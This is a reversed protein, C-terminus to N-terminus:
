PATGHLVSAGNITLRDCEVRGTLRSGGNLTITGAPALVVAELTAGGNLTVGGSAVRLTLWAPDATADTSGNLLVDGAVTLIVPGAIELHAGGNLTLRRLDYIAPETAGAVGLTIRSGGNVIFAGYTGPPVAVSGANSNL